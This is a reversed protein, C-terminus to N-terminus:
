MICLHEWTYLDSPVKFEPMILRLPSKIRVLVRLLM